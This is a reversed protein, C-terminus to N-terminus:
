GLYCVASAYGLVEAGWAIEGGTEGSDAGTPTPRWAGTAWAIAWGASGIVCIAVISILNKVTERRKAAGPASSGDEVIKGLPDENERLSARRRAAESAAASSRRRRSGPLDVTSSRRSVTSPRRADSTTTAAQRNGLLPQTPDQDDISVRAAAIQHKKSNKISYYLCQSLLVGDSLCFYVAIAIVTPVLGAWFAGIM